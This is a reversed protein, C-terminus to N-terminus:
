LSSQPSLQRKGTKWMSYDQRICFTPFSQVCSVLAWPLCCQARMRQPWVCCVRCMQSFLRGSLRLSFPTFPLRLLIIAGSWRMVALISYLAYGLGAGLGTLVGLGTVNGADTLVGTVLVCGVFTLVLALVKRKTFKEGFLFFSLVMVIAPATYLLVAAVSLSTLTIAKFYCFNFFVISCIGTGLFCWLDKLRIRFMKRNFILLFAGMALATAVARLFVIDMSYLGMANLRRVFIGICGWLIGAALIFLPALKKM